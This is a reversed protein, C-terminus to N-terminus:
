FEEMELDRKVLPNDSGRLTAHRKTSIRFTREIEDLKSRSGKRNMRTDCEVCRGTIRVTKENENVIIISGPAAQRPERCGFCYFEDAKCSKRAKARREELWAKLVFGM